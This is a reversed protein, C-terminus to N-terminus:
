RRGGEGALQLAMGVLDAHITPTAGEVVKENFPQPATDLVRGDIQIVIFRFMSVM